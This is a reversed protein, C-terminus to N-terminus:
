RKSIYRNVRPLPVHGQGEAFISFVGHTNTTPSLSMGSELSVLFFIMWTAFQRIMFYQIHSLSLSLTLLQQRLSLVSVLIAVARAREAITMRDM